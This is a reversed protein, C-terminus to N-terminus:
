GFHSQMAAAFLPSMAERTQTLWDNPAYYAKVYHAYEVPDNVGGPSSGGYSVIGEWVGDDYDSETIGSNRLSGTDVPVLMQSYDMAGQLAQELRHITIPEPHGTIRVVEAIMVPLTTEFIFTSM